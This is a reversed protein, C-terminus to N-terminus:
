QLLWDLVPVVEIGDYNGATYLDVTLITKPYNDQMARLPAFEREFASPDILSEAVQYYHLLDGKRAVFDVETRSISGITVDPYRRRLELYVMNEISAGLDCNDHRPILYRRLGLDAIYLKQNTKLLQKALVDYRKVPYFLYPEILADLYDRVTNPSIRRGSSSISDAISKISVSRGISRALIRAISGLLNLDSVQRRNPDPDKRQQRVEVGKVLVTNYSGELYPDAQDRLDDMAALYPLAGYSLYDAFLSEKEKPGRLTCYEKFSLPLMHIEVYRGSLLTALEGSLLCANSGALYLDVNERLYLSDVARQFDPVLQVEDLIIYNMRDPVLRDLVYQHLSHYGRYREFQPDDFNITIIQEPSVDSALLMRQYQMLLTSKGCRRLGTVVKILKEDKWVLLEKLYGTREVM